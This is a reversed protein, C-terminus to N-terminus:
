ASELEDVLTDLKDNIKDSVDAYMAYFAIATHLSLLGGERACEDLGGINDAMYDENDTHKIVDLNYAYYIVWQHGDIREHLRYDYISESAVEIKDSPNLDSDCDELAEACIDTTISDIEKWYEHYTLDSM